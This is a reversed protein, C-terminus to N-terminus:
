CRVRAHGSLVRYAEQYGAAQATRISAVNDGAVTYLLVLGRGLMEHSAHVLLGRAYGKRRDAPRTRIMGIEWINDLQRGFQVYSVLEGAQVWGFVAFQAPEQEAWQVQLSLPPERYKDSAPFREIMPADESTLRRVTEHTVLGDAPAALRFARTESQPTADVLLPQVWPWVDSHVIFQYERLPDLRSLLATVAAESDTTLQVSARDAFEDLVLVGNVEGREDSATWVQRPVPPMNNEIVGIMGNHAFVDQRLYSLAQALDGAV